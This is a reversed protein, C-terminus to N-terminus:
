CFDRSYTIHGVSIYEETGCVALDLTLVCALKASPLRAINDTTANASPVVMDDILEPCWKRDTKM